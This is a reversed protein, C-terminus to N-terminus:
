ILKMIQTLEVLLKPETLVQNTADFVDFFSAVSLSGKIDAAFYPASNVAQALVSAGGRAGPSTSLFVCPKNQFVKGDIRSCWDFLNKYAASYTGNHEAFSVLIADANTLKQLFDKALQPQGLIQEKDQSFLPLEFDNLDLLEVEADVVLSAAFGALQKNISKSSNSAAFAVIKM